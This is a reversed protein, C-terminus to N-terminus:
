AFREERGFPRPAPHPKGGCGADCYISATQEPDIPLEPKLRSSRAVVDSSDRELTCPVQAICLFSSLFRPSISATLAHLSASFRPPLPFSANRQIRTQAIGRM